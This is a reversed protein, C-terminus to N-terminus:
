SRGARDLWDVAIAACAEPADDTLFHAGGDIFALEFRHARKAHDRCVHRVLHESWPADQRGFVALTPPKLMQRKFDGRSLQMTVPMIMGRYLASVGRSVEPRAQVRLYGDLVEETMPKAVYGPGFVWRMSQGERHMLMRPMHRFGPLLRLDFNMFGPPVSYQLATRVREPHAYALQMAVVSGLDHSVYHAPGIELADLLALLDELMGDRRFGPEAAETWGSGRLDPCIVRHGRAAIAPAITRWEWWHQPFGHLMVVPEGEGIAAVHVRLGPLEVVSHEFGDADPLPPSWARRVSEQASASTDM